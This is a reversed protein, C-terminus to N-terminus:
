NYTFIGKESHITVQKGTHQEVRGVIKAEVGFSRSISIIESALEEPVYVEMRHGMNFVKYM